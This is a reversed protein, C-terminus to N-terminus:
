FVIDYNRFALRSSSVGLFDQANFAATLFVVNIQMYSNQTNTLFHDCVLFIDRWFFDM